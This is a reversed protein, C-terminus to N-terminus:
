NGKLKKNMIQSVLRPNAKGKTKAMVKGILFGIAKKKGERYQKVPGPNGEIVENVIDELLSEDSIQEIGKKKVIQSPTKGTNFMEEFIEKAMKSSIKGKDIMNLM